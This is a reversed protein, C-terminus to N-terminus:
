QTPDGHHSRWLIPLFVLCAFIAATSVSIWSASAMAWAFLGFCMTMALLVVAKASLAQLALSLVTAVTTKSETM